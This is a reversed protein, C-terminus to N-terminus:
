HLQPCSVVLLLLWVHLPVVAQFLDLPAPM